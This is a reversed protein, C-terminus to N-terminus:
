RLLLYTVFAFVGFLMLLAYNQILGTQARRIAYSSKELIWGVLNVLGDVIYKDILGSIWSTLITTWGSGNVAGDVVNRDVAWLLNASALTSNVFTAGYLEDVYYKNSLVRHAGSFRAALNESIEPRRVYFRYAVWIGVVGLFVSFAMLGIEGAAAMEPKEVVGEHGAEAAAQEQRAPRVDRGEAQAV